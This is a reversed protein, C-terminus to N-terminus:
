QVSLVKSKNAKIEMMGKVWKGVEALARQPSKKRKLLFGQVEAPSFEDDPIKSAFEAAIDSLPRPPLGCEAPIIHSTAATTDEDDPTTRFPSASTHSSVPSSPPTLGHPLVSKKFNPKTFTPTLNTTDKPEIAQPSHDLYMREFIEKIQPQTANRFAVQLDVRGPRILADDLKEPKNTTMILLRGEHSAVGDIVNLLGSLSIGNKDDGSKKSAAKLAKTIDALKPSSQSDAQVGGAVLKEKEEDPRILGASDIDELLVVCRRPLADFLQGLDEETITPELLSIVYVDLGFLGAIGFSFSTKGTGPNGHFLYGRRYPIGRNAYWRPSAPNLFENIDALVEMKRKADLVITDLPRSPREAIQTWCSRSGWRRLDKPSPRRITTKSNHDKLCFDKAEQLLRKIPEPSRGLCSLSVDEKDMIMTSGIDMACSRSRHFSFYCGNHWFSYTGYAPIFRPPAKAEYNSFNWFEASGDKSKESAYMEYEEDQEWTTKRCTEAALYRSKGTHHQAALWKMLHDWIDDYGDIQVTSTFNDAVIQYVVGYAYRALKAIGLTAAFFTVLITTDISFTDRIFSHIPGYGPIFTELLQTPITSSSTSSTTNDQQSSLADRFLSSLSMGPTSFM